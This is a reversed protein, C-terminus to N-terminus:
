LLTGPWLMQRLKNRGIYEDNENKKAERFSLPYSGWEVELLLPLSVQLICSQPDSLVEHNITFGFVVHAGCAWFKGGVVICSM